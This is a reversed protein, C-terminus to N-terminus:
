WSHIVEVKGSFGEGPTHFGEAVFDWSNGARLLLSLKVTLDTDLHAVVAGKKGEPLTALQRAIDKQMDEATYPFKTM